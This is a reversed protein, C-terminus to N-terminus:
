RPQHIQHIRRPSTKNSVLYGGKKGKKGAKGPSTEVNRWKGSNPISLEKLLIGKLDFTVGDLPKKQEEDETLKMLEEFQDELDAVEEDFEFGLDLNEPLFDEDADTVASGDFSGERHESLWFDRFWTSTKVLEWWEPSFDEVQRYVSPIFIPANPNLASRQGSVLAMPKEINFDDSGSLASLQDNIKYRHLLRNMLQQALRSLAPFPTHLALPYSLFTQGFRAAKPYRLPPM